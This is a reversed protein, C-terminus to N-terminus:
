RPAGETLGALWCFNHELDRVREAATAGDPQCEYNFPGQYNIEALARMLAAWDIVGRGPMWHKEDVGDYDSLHTTILRPGLARVLAPLARYDGMAHNVDLCVGFVAPDLRELFANLEGLSNCLCSRPLLELAGRVGVDAYAPTIESLLALAQATRAPREPPAIPEASAHLIVMPAGLALALDLADYAAGLARAHTEPDLSSLDYPAGFTSHITAARAPGADLLGTLAALAGKRDDRFLSTFIELTAVQSGAIAEVAEPTVSPWLCHFSVGLRPVFM